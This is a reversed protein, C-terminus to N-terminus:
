AEGQEIVRGKQHSFVETLNEAIEKAIDEYVTGGTLYSEYADVRGEGSYSDCVTCLADAIDAPDCARLSIINKSFSALDKNAYCNTITRAGFAAMELPPYSPHPSVMLSVGAYTDLLLKAYEDLPLKGVSKLVMGGGLDVDDHQEGASLVTWTGADKQRERWRKLAYILLEFANRSVSPRGYVLIQKKKMIRSGREPLYRRLSDNLVPDFQWSRAFFYGNQRFYEALIGSNIVAFIPIEMHYTSEALMYRSSWPYFGPEYDQVMYILPKQEEDYIKSQWRIVDSVVYATWWATAVFVDNRRVPITRGYRDNMPIVQLAASSDQGCSCYMYGDLPVSTQEKVVGDTVIIRAECGCTKRLVEFFRLATAIGGFVDMQDVSPTLLNLRMENGEGRRANLPSIEPVEFGSSSMLARKLAHYTKVALPNKKLYNVFSVLKVPSVSEKPVVSTIDLNVNFFPDGNERYLAYAIASKQFDIEPIYSDRSKSEYHYLRVNADYRNQLGSEYARICWEVDSGCIIFEEDFGGVREMTQKSIAMCAGTVALANRSVMPSVYPSGCHEPRMGKFIHDAWGGLGVVVGAHQITDDPYLLLAGVAGTDPRLANESLRELWDSSIVKTDNNLFVYVDGKAHSVGFNNLKSWNFEMDADIVRVRKDERQIREAWAATDQKESRNNLLLIEYDLYSSNQLVSRVCDNTMEWRDKFPIIISIFPHGCAFRPNYVFLYETEEAYAGQGYKRKLHEDLARLSAEHAYPKAAPNAATSSGSERCSYLRRPIHCIKDTQESLRLMLDYDQSGDYKARFGGISEFLERRFVLLHCIYMQSYLLDPSWDPKYLPYAHRGDATIHDEDSYLIDAGTEIIAAANMELADPALVDDHDLLAIYGGAAMAICANTNDSIGRNEGLRRYKIRTERGAYEECIKGVYSHAEDSGDAMCLEWNGYTQDLVSQIMERLFGKPTNYLPVAISFKITEPVQCAAPAPASGYQVESEKRNVGAHEKMRQWTYRVGNERLCKVGKYVLRAGHSKKLPKKIQDLTARLPKTMKWCAAESITNYAGQVASLQQMLEDRQSIVQLYHQQYISFEAELTEKETKLEQISQEKTGVIESWAQLEKATREEMGAIHANLEQIHHEKEEISNTLDQVLRDKEIVTENLGKIKCLVHLDRQAATLSDLFTTAEANGTKEWMSDAYEKWGNDDKKSIVYFVRYCNDSIDSLYISNNYFSYLEQHFGQANPSLLADFNSYWMKEWVRIDGHCFSFYGGGLRDLCKNVEELVPLSNDRHEKLWIFDEGTFAKYYENVRNEAGIVDPSDHPFSLLVGIRAVRYAESLFQTRKEPPIHEFVDAAAVFDFSRDEFPLDTGDAMQFDPDAEMTSTLYIDTFLIRDNPMFLAMDKHENAGLELIDFHQEPSKRHYEILRSITEYRQYQDFSIDTKKM